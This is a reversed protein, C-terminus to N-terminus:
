RALGPIDVAQSCTGATRDLRNPTGPRERLAPLANAHGAPAPGRQTKQRSGRYGLSTLEQLLAAPRLHPDDTLRQLCYGTFAAIQTM